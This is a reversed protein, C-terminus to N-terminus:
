TAIATVHEEVYGTEDAQEVLREHAVHPRLNDGGAGTENLTVLLEGGANVGRKGEDRAVVAIRPERGRQVVRFRLPLDRVHVSRVPERDVHTERKCIERAEV